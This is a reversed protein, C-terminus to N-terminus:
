RGEWPDRGQEPNHGPGSLHQPRKSAELLIPLACVGALLALGLLGLVQGRASVLWAPWLSQGAKLGLLIEIVFLVGVAIALYLWGKRIIRPDRAEAHHRERHRPM